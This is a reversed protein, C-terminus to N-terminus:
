RSVAKLVARGKESLRYRVQRPLVPLAMLLVRDILGRDVLRQVLRGDFQSLEAEPYSSLYHLCALETANLRAALDRENM